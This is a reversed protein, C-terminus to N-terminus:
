YKSYSKAGNGVPLSRYKQYFAWMIRSEEEKAEQKGRCKFYYVRAQHKLMYQYRSSVWPENKKMGYQGKSDKLRRVTRQHELMRSRLKDSMGIYIVKSQGKPYPFKFRDVTEIIYIGPSDDLGPPLGEDNDLLFDFDVGQETRFNSMFPFVKPKM